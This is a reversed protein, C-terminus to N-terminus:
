GPQAVGRPESVKAREPAHVGPRRLRPLGSWWLNRRVLVFALPVIALATIFPMLALRGGEHRRDVTEGEGILERIASAASRAEEEELVRGGIATAVGHIAARSAPDSRYGGEAVGTEYIREGPRWVHILVTEIRPRTSFARALGHELPRTEGDTFVVLLRKKAAPPFYNLEPFDALSDLTTARLADYCARTSCALGGQPAEGIRVTRELTAAFVTQDTTPFLHPIAGDAFTAIGFPVEPLEPRLELAIRRARDFRTAAGPRESALMSRSTDFVAFLQVDTREAITRTTKVVPQAAAVGLLVPVAALAAVISLLSTRAPEALGLAARIERIRVLRRLFVAVPVLASVAFLAALPTVFSISV